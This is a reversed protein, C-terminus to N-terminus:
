RARSARFRGPSMGYEARFDRDFKNVSTYGLASSIQKILKSRDQLLEAAKHMRRKRLYRRFTLGSEQQFLRGLYHASLGLESSLERLSLNETYRQAAAQLVKEV